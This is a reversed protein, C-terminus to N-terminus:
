REPSLAQPGLWRLFLSCAYRLSGPSRLSGVFRSALSGTPSDSPRLGVSYINFNFRFLDGLDNAILDAAVRDVDVDGLDARNDRNPVADRPHM